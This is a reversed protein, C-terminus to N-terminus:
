RAGKLWWDGQLHGAQWWGSVQDVLTRELMDQLTKGHWHEFSTGWSGALSQGAATRGAWYGEWGRSSKEARWTGELVVQGTTDLTWTGVAVNPRHRLAGGSWTGHLVRGKGVTAIWTGHLVRAPEQGLVCSSIFLAVLLMRFKVSLMRRM